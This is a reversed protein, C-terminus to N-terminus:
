RKWHRRCNCHAWINSTFTLSYPKTPALENLMQREEQLAKEQNELLIATVTKKYNDKIEPLDAHELIAGWKKQINESLYM